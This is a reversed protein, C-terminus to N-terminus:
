AAVQKGYRKLRAEFLKADNRSNRQGLEYVEDHEAKGALPHLHEIVSSPSVAFVGRQVAVTSWEADVYWHSYGEHCVVGPGDWSAGHEDIYARAIVPHTALRGDKVDQNFVDNTAVVSAGLNRATNLAHDWWAPKFQVDSGVLLIWPATTDPYVDNVKEAFSTLGTTFVHAGAARWAAITEGDDENAVAYVTALGTTARLSRMFPEAHHPRGMVPVIVDVYEDAQPAQIQATYTAESVYIPKLHSTRVRTDVFVPLDCIAARMCFSTDEGWPKDCKPHKIRSFWPGIDDSRDRMKELASRHILLCAAGTGKVRNLAGPRYHWMIQFGAATETENFWYLTPFPFRFPGSAEGMGDQTPTYGFCLGGVIPRSKPDAVAVLRELAEPDWGMDSDVFWMWEVDTELFEEVAENRAEAIDYSKSLKFAWGGRALRQKSSLDYGLTGAFSMMYNPAFQHEDDYLTVLRVSGPDVRV